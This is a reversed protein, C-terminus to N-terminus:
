TYKALKEAKSQITKKMSEIQNVLEENRESFEKNAKITNDLNQKMTLTDFKQQLTKHTQTLEDNEKQAETVKDEYEKSQSLIDTHTTRINEIEVKLLQIKRNLDKNVEQANLLENNNSNVSNVHIIYYENEYKIIEPEIDLIDPIIDETLCEVLQPSNLYNALDEGQFQLINSENFIYVFIRAFVVFGHFVVFDLIKLLTRHDTGQLFQRFISKQLFEKINIGLKSVHIFTPGALDELSRMIEYYLQDKNLNVLIKNFKLLLYLFEEEALHPIEPFLETLRNLFEINYENSQYFDLVEGSNIIDLSNQGELVVEQYYNYVKFANLATGEIKLGDLAKLDTKEAKHLLNIYKEKSLQYRVQLGKLYALGRFDSPIGKILQSALDEPQEEETIYRKWYGKYADNDMPDMSDIIKDVRQKIVSDSINVAFLDSIENMNSHAYAELQRQVLIELLSMPAKPLQKFPELDPATTRPPLEPKM